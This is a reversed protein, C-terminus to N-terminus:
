KQAEQLKSRLRRMFVMTSDTMEKALKEKDHGRAWFQVLAKPDFPQRTMTEELQAQHNECLHWSGDTPQPGHASEECKHYVCEIM